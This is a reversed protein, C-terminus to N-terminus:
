EARLINWLAPDETGDIRFISIGSLGLEHALAIKQRIAEADSWWLTNFSITQGTANAYALAKQAYIDGPLTGTPAPYSTGVVIPTTTGKYSFSLEGARNRLPTMWLKNAFDTAYPASASWLKKYDAFRNPSVTVEYEFGYTPVGLMIKEKPITEAALTVVKRVWDVDAIPIYPTGSKADNLRFDARGQDYALLIVRDCHEGIAEYDNAYEITAPVVQYLSEPPTRAEISCVLMKKSGLEDKLEELFESFDDMTTALKGEYDIDVGDYHGDTVMDDIADIHDQRLKKDSLIREINIGDNWTITPIMTVDEDDATEILDEWTTTTELLALDKLTGNTEVSYGFPFIMDLTDINKKAVAAGEVSKWYPVWGAIEFDKQSSAVASFPASLITVTILVFSFVILSYRTKYTM